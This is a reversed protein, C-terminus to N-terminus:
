EIIGQIEEMANQLQQTLNKTQEISQSIKKFFFEAEGPEKFPEHMENWMKLLDSTNTEIELIRNLHFLPAVYSQGTAMEKLQVEKKQLEQDGVVAVFRAGLQNALQMAKGIKKRSFDMQTSIGKQRLEHALTFCIREAEKGLPILFLAPQYSPPLPIEQKLMTQIIREIGTGFGLAPLDPGGMTKILGDYRGGGGVSNQAGLQGSVIEFVTRNYYDLGRVLNHNVEFPVNLLTLLQKVTEFHDRSPGDLFDLISPASAVIKQDNPDKSDLIRLPNAEFRTKSDASLEDFHEKLYSKLAEKYSIRTAPTGISNIYVRLNSLGLRTYLTYLLDIVEADQEPAECGIVEVGFQHHQRYRGAQSREYRFMPGIYFLKHTRSEQHISNEVFARVVPATGEPRLSISRGGRDEFTYMEKSVVDTSEGVGRKFLETREFIPTRVEEFGYEAALKRIVSEAFTWLHSLQWTEETGRPLIDFVGPPKSIDM